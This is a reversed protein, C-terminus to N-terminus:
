LGGLLHGVTGLLGGDYTPDPAPAVTAATTPATSAPTSKPTASPTTASAHEAPKPAAGVGTTISAGHHGTTSSPAASAGNQCLPEPGLSDTGVIKVTSNCNLAQGIATARVQLRGLVTISKLARVAEPSKAPLGQEWGLLQKNQAAIFQNVSTLANANHHNVTDTFLLKAGDITQEDMRALTSDLTSSTPPTQESESLRMRAFDLYLNGKSVPTRALALQTNEGQLKMGYLADGPQADGSAASIGSLALTGVALGILIAARTRARNTTLRAKPGRQRPLFRRAASEHVTGVSARGVAPRSVFLDPTDVKATRGIGDREAAAMLMIRTDRRFEDSPSVSPTAATLDQSVALMYALEDDIPSRTHHRRAGNAEDLLQAYREIRRRHLAPANV